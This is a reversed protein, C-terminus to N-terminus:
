KESSRGCHAYQEDGLDYILMSFWSPITDVPFFVHNKWSQERAIRGASDDLLLDRPVQRLFHNESEFYRLEYEALIKIM